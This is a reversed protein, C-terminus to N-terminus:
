VYDTVDEGGVLVPSAEPARATTSTTKKPKTTIRPATAPAETVAAPKGVVSLARTRPAPMTPASNAQVPVTLDGPTSLGALPSDIESGSVLPDRRIVDVTVLAAVKRSVAVRVERAYCSAALHDAAHEIDRAAIGPRMWLRVREGVGTPRTWLFWPLHGDHNTARVQWLCSRLRHRTVVCMVRTHVFRRVPGVLVIVAVLAVITLWVGWSPLHADLTLYVALCAAVTTLEARWRWVWGAVMVPTSREPHIFLEVAGAKTSRRVRTRTKSM